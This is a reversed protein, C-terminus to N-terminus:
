SVGRRNGYRWDDHIIARPQIDWFVAIRGSYDEYMGGDRRVLNSELTAPEVLFLHNM